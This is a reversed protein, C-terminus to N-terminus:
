LSSSVPFKRNQELCSLSIRTKEVVDLCFRPGVWVQSEKGSPSFAPLPDSWVGDLAWTLLSHLSVGVIYVFLMDTLCLEKSNKLAVHKSWFNIMKM